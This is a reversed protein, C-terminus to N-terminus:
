RHSRVNRYRGIAEDSWRRYFIESFDSEERKEAVDLVRASVSQIKLSEFNEAFRLFQM